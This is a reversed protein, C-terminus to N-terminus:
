NVPDAAPKTRWALWVWIAFGIASAVAVIGSFILGDRAGLGLVTSFVLLPVLSGALAGIVVAVVERRLNRTSRIAARHAVWAVLVPPLAALVTVLVAALLALPLARLGFEFLFLVSIFAVLAGAGLQVAALRRWPIRPGAGVAADAV